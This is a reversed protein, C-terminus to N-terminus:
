IQQLRQEDTYFYEPLGEELEITFQVEKQKAIHSFQGTIFDNLENFKVENQVVELKGSEVKALDM